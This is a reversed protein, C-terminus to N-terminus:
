QAYTAKISRCIPQPRGSANLMQIQMEYAGTVAGWQTVFTALSGHQKNLTVPMAVADGKPPQIVWFYRGSPDFEGNFFYEVQFGMATGTPLTQALAVARALRLKPPASSNAATQAVGGPAKM